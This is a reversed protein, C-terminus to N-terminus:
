SLSKESSILNVSVPLSVEVALGGLKSSRRIQFIGDYSDVLDKVIALGLGSGDVEEDLRVGRQTLQFMQDDPCGPGDDEVLLVLNGSQAHASVSIVGKAWKCANDLLNGMLELLDERDITVSQIGTLDLRFLLDKGQYLRQLTSVLADLEAQLDLQGAYLTDGVVRSRKLEREVLQRVQRLQQGMQQQLQPYQTLEDRDMLQQLLTIPTKLAHTLNGMANRSRSMRKRMTLLLRNIETILPAVERLVPLSLQEREGQELLQLEARVEELPRLNRRVTWVQLLILVILILGTIVGYRWQFESIDQQMHSIDEAVAVTLKQDQKQFGRMLTLLLQQEPGEGTLQLVAGKELSQLPLETDWLSRSRLEGASSRIHFYHGSFVREYAPDLRDSSLNLQKDQASISAAALVAQLDREMRLLIYDEYLYRIGSSVLLWQVLFLFVLSVLLGTGLRWQLSYM